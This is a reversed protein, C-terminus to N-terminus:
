LEQPLLMDSLLCLPQDVLFILSMSAKRKSFTIHRRSKDQIFEIKIKQRGAKKEKPKDEDDDDDGGSEGADHDNIFADETVPQGPAVQPPQNPDAPASNALNM